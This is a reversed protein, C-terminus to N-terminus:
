CMHMYVRICIYACTHICYICAAIDKNDPDSSLMRDIATMLNTAVESDGQSRHMERLVAYGGMDRVKACGEDTKCILVMCRAAMELEMRGLCYAVNREESGDAWSRVYSDMGDLEIQRFGKGGKIEEPSLMDDSRLVGQADSPVMFRLLHPLADQIDPTVGGESALLSNFLAPLVQPHPMYKGLAKPSVEASCCLNRILRTMNSRFSRMLKSDKANKTFAIACGKSMFASSKKLSAVFTDRAHPIVTANAALTSYLEIFQTATVQKKGYGIVPLVQELSQAAISVISMKLKPDSGKLTDCLATAVSERETRM